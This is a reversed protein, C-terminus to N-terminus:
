AGMELGWCGTAWALLWAAEKSAERGVLCVLGTVEIHDNRDGFGAWGEAM